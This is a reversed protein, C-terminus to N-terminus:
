LQKPRYADPSEKVPEEASFVVKFGSRINFKTEAIKKGTIAFSPLHHNQFYGGGVTQHTM